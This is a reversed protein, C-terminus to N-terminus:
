PLIPSGPTVPPSFVEKTAGMEMRKKKQEIEQFYIWYYSAIWKM